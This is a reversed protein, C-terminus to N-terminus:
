WILLFYYLLLILLLLLRSTGGHNDVEFFDVCLIIWKVNDVSHMNVVQPKKFLGQYSESFSQGKYLVALWWSFLCCPSFLTISVVVIVIEDHTTFCMFSFAALFGVMRYPTLSSCIIEPGLTFVSVGVHALCLTPRVDCGPNGIWVHLYQPEFTWTLHSCVLLRIPWNPSWGIM